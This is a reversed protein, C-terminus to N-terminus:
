KEFEIKNQLSTKRGIEWMGGQKLAFVGSKGRRSRNETSEVMFAEKSWNINMLININISPIPM